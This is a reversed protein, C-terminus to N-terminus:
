ISTLLKLEDPKKHKFALYTRCDIGGIKQYRVLYYQNEPCFILSEAKPALIGRQILRHSNRYFRIAYPWFQNSSFGKRPMFIKYITQQQQLLRPGYKGALLIESQQCLEQFEVLSMIGLPWIKKFLRLLM